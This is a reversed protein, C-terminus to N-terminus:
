FFTSAPSLFAAYDRRVKVKKAKKMKREYSLAGESKDANRPSNQFRFAWPLDRSVKRMAKM